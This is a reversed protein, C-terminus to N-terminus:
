PAVAKSHTFGSSNLDNLLNQKTIFPFSGGVHAAPTVHRTVFAATVVYPRDPAAPPLRLSSAVAAAHPALDNYKRLLQAAYAPERSSGKYFRDLHRRIEATAYAGSPDKIELLWLSPDDPRGAVIDIETELSPVGLRQPDSEHIRDIVHWGADRLIQEIERELARNRRDRVHALANQLAASPPPQSWPLQGQSLHNYYVTLATHCFHPAVALRGDGLEVLPQVLLRRQRSRAQWPRWDVAAFTAPTTTLMHIAAAARAPGDGEGAWTTETALYTLTTDRDAIAIDQDDDLQWRALAFLTSTLDMGTAGHEAMMAEELAADFASPAVLSASTQPGNTPEPDKTTPALTAIGVPLATPNALREAAQAARMAESDLAYGTVGPIRPALTPEDRVAIEHMDDIDLVVPTVQHHIAESRTTAVLYAHATALIEMWDVETISHAGSPQDLIAAEIVIEQCRRLKFANDRIKALRLVPDYILPMARAGIEVDRVQRNAAAIGRDIQILGVRIVADTPHPALRSTLARRAAPALVDRDLDKAREGTYTGPAVGAAAVDRSIERAAEAALADDLPWPPPLDDRLTVGTGITIALTPPAAEWATRVTTAAAEGATIAVVHGITAAIARKAAETDHHTIEALADCDVAITASIVSGGGIADTVSEHNAVWLPANHAEDGSRHALRIRYGAITPKTHADAWAPAIGEVGFALASAVSHLLDGYREPWAADACTFAAAPTATTSLQWGEIDPPAQGPAHVAQGAAPARREGSAAQPSWRYLRPPGGDNEINAWDSLPPLGTVALAREVPALRATDSWEAAGGHPECAVVDFARAGRGFSKGNDRWIEYVDIGEYAILAPAGAVDRCFTWLDTTATWTRSIWDLDDLSLMVVGPRPPIGLYGASALIIVPIVEIGPELRMTGRPMPISISDDPRERAMRAVEIAAPRDPIADPGLALRAVIQVALLRHPDVGVLWQVVNGPSVAPGDGTDPAGWIHGFPWLLNRVTDAILRAWRLHTLPDRAAVQAVEIVGANVSDAVFAPPLWVLGSSREVALYHGFMSTRDLPNYPLARAGVTAWALAKRGPDDVPTDAGALTICRAAAAVEADTVQPADGLNVDGDPWSREFEAIAGSNHRLALLCYDLIGFGLTPVLSPECAEAVRKWRRADAVPREVCGPFLRLLEDRLRVVVGERPDLLVVDEM